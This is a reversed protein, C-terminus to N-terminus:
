VRDATCTTQWDAPEGPGHIVLGAAAPPVTVSEAYSGKCVRIDTAGREVAADVAAQISTFEAGVCDDGLDDVVLTDVYARSGQAMVLAIAAAAAALTAGTRFGM